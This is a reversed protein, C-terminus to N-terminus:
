CMFSTKSATMSFNETKIVSKIKYRDTKKDIKNM